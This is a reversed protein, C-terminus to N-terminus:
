SRMQDTELDSELSFCLIRPYISLIMLIIMHGKLFQCQSGKIESLCIKSNHALSSKAYTRKPTTKKKCLPLPIPTFEFQFHNKTWCWLSGRPRSTNMHDGRHKTGESKVYLTKRAPLITKNYWCGSLVDTRYKVM